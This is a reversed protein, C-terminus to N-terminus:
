AFGILPQPGLGLTGVPSQAALNMKMAVLLRQAGSFLAEWQVIGFRRPERGLFINEGITMEGVLSLEQHVVAIGAAEADRIGAFHRVEGDVLIDGGHTGTPYVAALVKMLTSKGAGNERVLAHVEGRQMAFYVHDLARVGPLTRSIERMALLSTM